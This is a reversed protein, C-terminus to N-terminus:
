CFNDRIIVLYEKKDLTRTNWINKYYSMVTIWHIVDHWLFRIVVRTIVSQRMSMVDNVIDTEVIRKKNFKYDNQLRYFGMKFPWIIFLINCEHDNWIFNILSALPENWLNWIFHGSMYSGRNWETTFALGLFFSCSSEAQSCLSTALYKLSALEVARPMLRSSRVVVTNSTRVEGFDSM